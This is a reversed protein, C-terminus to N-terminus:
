RPVHRKRRIEPDPPQLSDAVYVNGADDLAVEQPWFFEGDGSGYGGLKALYTGGDDFILIRHNGRDAVYLNGEGDVALGVPNYFEGDGSGPNGWTALFTGNADFKQVRHNNGSVYVSGSGDVAIGYPTDFQGEGSGFGGWTTVFEHSEVAMVAPVSGCLLLMILFLQIRTM